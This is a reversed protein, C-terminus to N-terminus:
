SGVTVCAFVTMLADFPFSFIGDDKGDAHPEYHAWPNRLSVTRGGGEGAIGWVSYEHGDLLGRREYTFTAPDYERVAVGGRAHKRGLMARADQNSWTMAVTIRREEVASRLAEWVADPEANELWTTHAPRGTLAEVAVSAEGGRDLVSYGGRLVAYAKEFLAVWLGRGSVTTAGIPQGHAEPLAADVVVEHEGLAHTAPDRRFLRVAFTGDGRERIAARVEEPRREALSALSAVFFCDGLTTQKVEAGLPHGAFLPGHEDVLHARGRDQAPLAPEKRPPDHAGM